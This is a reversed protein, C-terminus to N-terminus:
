SVAGGRLLGRMMAIGQDATMASGFEDQAKSVAEERGKREALQSPTLQGDNGLLGRAEVPGGSMVRNVVARYQKVFGGKLKRIRSESSASALDFWGTAKGAERVAAHSWRHNSPSRAHQIAEDFAVEVNPMGFDEPQPRLTTILRAVSPPWENGEAKIRELAADLSQPTPLMPWQMM